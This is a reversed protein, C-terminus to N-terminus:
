GLMARLWRTPQRLLSPQRWPQSAPTAAKPVHAPEARAPTDREPSGDGPDEQVSPANAAQLMPSACATAEAMPQAQPEAVQTATAPVGQSHRDTPGPASTSGPAMPGRRVGRSSAVLGEPQWVRSLWHLLPKWDQLHASNESPSLDFLGRGLDLLQRYLPDEPIITLLPFRHTLRQLRHLDGSDQPWRMGVLAVQCRGAAVRPHRVLEELLDRSADLDFLSPGVPVVVADVHVLLKALAYDYLGGPTDLVVHTTGPPARFVKGNDVAWSLVDTCEPPRANLWSRVSQQKDIDGIMVQHGESACWSALTTALTSKGCGGKRNIVAVVPM